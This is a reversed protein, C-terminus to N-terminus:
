SSTLRPTAEWFSEANQVGRMDVYRTRLLSADRHGIECQLESYSRFYSLHYSAFTHRLADQRWVKVGNWGALRRLVRWHFLWNPPCIPASEGRQNELLIRLLPRHISIRRAGGTKSHQPRIYIARADLDVQEWTLRSVEHPRVGAYLMMGVAAACDGNRYGKAASNIQEIEHQTLIPLPKEQVRPVEVQAVPNNDCWGHRIATSFIGSLIARAKRRQHMSSFARELMAACEATNLARVRRSSLGPNMRMLRKCFYRYDVLTRPRRNKRDSLATEVVKQFSVTGEQRHLAEAGALLFKRTRKVRGRGKELAEKAILAADVPNVGTQRLIIVAAYEEETIARNM